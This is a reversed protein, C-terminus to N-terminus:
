KKNKKESQGPDNTSPPHENNPKKFWGTHEGNDKKMDEHRGDDRSVFVACSSAGFLFCMCLALMTIKRFIKM